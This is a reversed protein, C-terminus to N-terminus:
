AIPNLQISFLTYEDANRGHFFKDLVEYMNRARFYSVQLEAKGKQAWQVTYSQKKTHKAEVYELMQQLAELKDKGETTHFLFTEDHRPNITILNLQMLEGDRLYDFVLKDLPLEMWKSIAHQIRAIEINQDM